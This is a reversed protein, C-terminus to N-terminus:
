SERSQHYDLAAEVLTCVDPNDIADLTKFKIHRANKGTGRLLGKPDPLHAGKAFGLNVSDKLLMIVYILGGYTADTGYALMKAPEDIQEVPNPMVSLILQRASRAMAQVEPTFNELYVEITM